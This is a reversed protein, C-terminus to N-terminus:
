QPFLSYKTHYKYIVGFFCARSFIHSFIHAGMIVSIPLVCAFCQNLRLWFDALIWQVIKGINLAAGNIAEFRGAIIESDILSDCGRVVETYKLIQKCLYFNVVKAVYFQKTRSTNLFRTAKDGNTHTVLRPLKENDHIISLDPILRCLQKV